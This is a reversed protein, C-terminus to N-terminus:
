RAQSPETIIQIFALHSPIYNPLLPWLIVKNTRVQSGQKSILISYTRGYILWCNIAIIVVWWPLQTWWTGAHIWWLVYVPLQRSRQHMWPRLRWQLFREWVWWYRLVSLPLSGMTSILLFMSLYRLLVYKWFYCHIWCWLRWKPSDWLTQSHSFCVESYEQLTHAHIMNSIKCLFGKCFVNKELQPAPLHMRNIFDRDIFIM